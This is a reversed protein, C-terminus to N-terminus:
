RPSTHLYTSVGLSGNNITLAESGAAQPHVTTTQINTNRPHTPRKAKEAAYNCLVAGRL